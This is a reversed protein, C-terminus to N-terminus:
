TAIQSIAKGLTDDQVGIVKANAEYARQAEILSTMERIASVSSGELYGPAIQAQSPIEIAEGGFPEFLNEGVKHLVTQDELSVVAIQAVEDEGIMVRGDQDIIANGEEVIIPENDISLVPLGNQATLVGQPNFTFAGNRSYYAKDGPSQIKFFGDGNLAVDLPNETRQLSGQEFISNSRDGEVAGGIALLHRQSQRSIPGQRLVEPDRQRLTLFDKKFGHTNSNALNNSIVDARM